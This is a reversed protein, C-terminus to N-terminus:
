LAMRGGKQCRKSGVQLRTTAKSNARQPMVKGMRASVLLRTADGNGQQAAIIDVAGELAEERGQHTPLNAMDMGAVHAQQGPLLEWLM